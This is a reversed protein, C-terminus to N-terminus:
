ILWSQAIVAKRLNKQQVDINWMCVASYVSYQRKVNWNNKQKTALPLVAVASYRHRWPVTWDWKASDWIASDWKVSDCLLGFHM